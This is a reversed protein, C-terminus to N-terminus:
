GVGQPVWRDRDRQQRDLVLGVTRGHQEVRCAAMAAARRHQQVECMREDTVREILAAGRAFGQEELQRPLHTRPAPLPPEIQIQQARLLDQQALAEALTSGRADCTTAAPTSLM